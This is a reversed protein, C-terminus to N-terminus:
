ELAKIVGEIIASTDDDTCREKLAPLEEVLTPKSVRLAARDREVLAQLAGAVHEISSEDAGKVAILLVEDDDRVADLLWANGSHASNALFFCCRSRVRADTDGVAAVLKADAGVKRFEERVECPAARLLASAARVAKARVAANEDDLLAAIAPLGGAKSVATCNEPMDQLLSGMAWLAAARVSADSHRLSTLVPPLVRLPTINRAYNLDAMYEEVHALSSAADAANDAELAANLASIAAKIGANMDPFAADLWARDSALAAVDAPAAPANTAPASNAAGWQLLKNLSTLDDPGPANGSHAQRHANVAGSQASTPPVDDARVVNQKGSTM